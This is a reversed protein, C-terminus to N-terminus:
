TLECSGSTKPRLGARLLEPDMFLGYFFGDARRAASMGEGAAETGLDTGRGGFSAM